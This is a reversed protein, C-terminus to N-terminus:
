ISVVANRPKSIEDLELKLTEYIKSNDGYEFGIDLHSSCFLGTSNFFKVALNHAITGDARIFGWPPLATYEKGTHCTLTYTHETFGYSDQGSKYRISVKKGNALTFLHNQYNM